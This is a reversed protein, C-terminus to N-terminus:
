CGGVMEPLASTGAGSGTAQSTAPSKGSSFSASAIKQDLSFLQVTQLLGVIILLALVLSQISPLSLKPINISITKREKKESVTENSTNLM